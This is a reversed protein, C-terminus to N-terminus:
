TLPLAKFTFVIKATFGDRSTWPDDEPDTVCDGTLRFIGYHDAQSAAGITVFNEKEETGDLVLIHKSADYSSDWASETTPDSVAHMELYVFASKDKRGKTTKDCLTLTSKKRITGTVSASVSIPVESQNDIYSPDTIVVKGDTVTAGASVSVKKPNLYTNTATPLTVSLVIDPISCSATIRTNYSKSAAATDVPLVSFMVLCATLLATLKKKM